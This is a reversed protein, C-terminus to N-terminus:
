GAGALGGQRVDRMRVSACGRETSPRSTFITGLDVWSQTPVSTCVCQSEIFAGRVPLRDVLGGGAARSPGEPEVVDAVRAQVPVQAPDHNAGHADLAAREPRGPPLLADDEKSIAQVRILPTVQAPSHHTRKFAAQRVM